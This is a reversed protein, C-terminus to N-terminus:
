HVSEYTKTWQLYKTLYWLWKSKMLDITVSLGEWLCPIFGEMWKDGNVGTNGRQDVTYVKPTNMIDGREVNLWLIM